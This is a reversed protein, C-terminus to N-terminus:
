CQNWSFESITQKATIVSNNELNFQYIESQEVDEHNVILLARDFAFLIKQKDDAFHWCNSLFRILYEIENEATYYNWVGGWIFMDGKNGYHVYKEPNDSVQKLMRQTYSSYDASMEVVESLTQKAIIELGALSNCSFSFQVGVYHGM